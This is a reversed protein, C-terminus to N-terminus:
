VRITGEFLRQTCPRCYSEVKADLDAISKSPALACEPNTCEPLAALRRSWYGVKEVQHRGFGRCLDLLDALGEPAGEPAPGSGDIAGSASTRSFEVAPARRASRGHSSAGQSRCAILALPTM